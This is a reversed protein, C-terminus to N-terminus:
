LAKVFELARQENYYVGGKQIFGVHGGYNPMELYLNANHKAQKVPYCKASLFTDNLANIVLTPVKIDQTFQLSSCQTYYDM